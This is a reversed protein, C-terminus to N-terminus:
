RRGLGLTFAGVLAIFLAIAVFAWSPGPRQGIWVGGAEGELQISTDAWLDGAAQELQDLWGEM